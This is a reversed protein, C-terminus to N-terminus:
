NENKKNKLSKNCYLQKVTNNIEATCGLRGAVRVCVDVRKKPNRGKWDRHLVTSHPLDEDTETTYM